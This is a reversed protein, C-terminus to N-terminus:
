FHNMGVIRPTDSLQGTYYTFYRHIVRTQIALLVRMSKKPWLYHTGYRKKYGQGFPKIPNLNFRLLLRNYM